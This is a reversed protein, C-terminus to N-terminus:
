VEEAIIAKAVTEIHAILSLRSQLNPGQWLRYATNRRIPFSTVDNPTRSEPWTAALESTLTYSDFWGENEDMTINDIIEGLNFCIGLCNDHLINREIHSRLVAICSVVKEAQLKTLCLPNFASM